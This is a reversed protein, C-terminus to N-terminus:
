FKIQNHRFQTIKDQHSLIYDLEDLGNLFCYKLFPDVTFHYAKGNTITQSELDITLSLNGSVADKLLEAIVESPQKVLLLGNKSSNNFFIDAFSPAIIAQIGAGMLAWVAHERSSGCGFNDETVLINAGNFQPRNFVFNPDSERLRKFLYQGYGERSVGTLYQAPIILDTDVDKLELPIVKGEIRTFKNM